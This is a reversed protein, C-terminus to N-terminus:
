DINPSYFPIFGTKSDTVLNESYDVELGLDKYEEDDFIFIQLNDKGIMEYAASIIQGISKKNDNDFPKSIHDIVILPILPYKEELLMLTMFALYGSLQILTHRAMSGVYYNVIEEKDEENIKKTVPQLVNGKKFYLIKFGSQKIDEQVVESISAASEYLQTIYQSMKKIKKNDDSNQLVKLENKIESITKKKKELEKDVSNIDASLYEEILAIAKTKEEVSFIKFRNNNDKIENKLLERKLKLDQITKDNILYKSFSISNDLEALLNKLPAVLYDFSENEKLLDDLNTLLKKRNENETQIHKMDFLRNEYIKIQEDISNFNVELDVINKSKKIRTVVELNKYKSIYDLIEDKNKGNYSKPADLKALNSNIQETIFKNRTATIELKKMQKQLEILENQLESIKELNNNFIYNLISNLKSYYKIDSCKDLFNYTVGQRKEGLFNFMTFTRYTLNENTFNKIDRLIQTEGKAFISNLKARYETLDIVEYNNEPDQYYTFYNKQTDRTRTTRYSIGDLEFVMTAKEFTKFYWPKKSINDSAGFMYDLFKYFETKGSNNVGKFYNVGNNFRYTYEEGTLSYMTLTSIKFM